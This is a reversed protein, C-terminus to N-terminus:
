RFPLMDSVEGNGEPSKRLDCKYNRDFLAGVLGFAKKGAQKNLICNPKSVM